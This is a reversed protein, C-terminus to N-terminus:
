DEDISPVGSDQRSHSGGGMLPVVSNQRSHTAVGSYQGRWDGGGGGPRGIGLGSRGLGRGGGGGGGGGGGLWGATARSLLASGAGLLAGAEQMEMAKRLAAWGLLGATGLIFGWVVVQDKQSDRQFCMTVVDKETAGKCIPLSQSLCFARNCQSCSPSTQTQARRNNRTRFLHQPSQPNLDSLPTNGGDPQTEDLLPTGGKNDKDSPPVDPTTSPTTTSTTTEVQGTTTSSSSSDSGPGEEKHSPPTGGGGGTTSKSKIEIITSNSFCTCKCFTPAATLFCVFNTLQVRGAHFLGLEPAFFTCAAAALSALAGIWFLLIALRNM